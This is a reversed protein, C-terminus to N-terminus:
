ACTLGGDVILTTGTIWRGTESVLFAIAHAVDRAEGLGLLHKKTIVAIQEDTLATGHTANVMETMVVGPAVCNVRISDRILEQALSKTLGLLASKSASYLSLGSEGKLGAASSVLVLSSWPQHVTKQRFGKALAFCSYVNIEFLSQSQAVNWQKLPQLAAVGACHVIGDVPGIRKALNQLWEPIKELLSLDFPEIIHNTGALTSATQALREQNRAVLVIRSGLQSLCRSTERGIGSSAGTVVITKGSLDMPNIMARCESANLNDGM